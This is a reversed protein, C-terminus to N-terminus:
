LIAVDKLEEISFFVEIENNEGVEIRRVIQNILDHTM